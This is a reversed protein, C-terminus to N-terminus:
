LREGLFTIHCPNRDPLRRLRRRLRLTRYSPGVPPSSRRATPRRPPRAGTTVDCPDSSPRYDGRKMGSGKASGHSGRVGRLSSDPRLRSPRDRTHPRLEPDKSPSMYSAQVLRPCHCPFSLFRIFLNGQVISAHQCSYGPELSPRKALVRWLGSRFLM